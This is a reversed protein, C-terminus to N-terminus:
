AAQKVLSVDISMKVKDGVLMNGSGLAQNFRMGYDDRSIQGRLEIGVRENGWPDVDAGLVDGTLVVDNTVGNITLRGEVRISDEDPQTVSTSVLTFRPHAEANFFDASRLHEDRQPEKTDVSAAQVTADVALVGTEGATLAGEFETFEGRVTAIGMHKVAFGVTSHSPDISWTGPTIVTTATTSM